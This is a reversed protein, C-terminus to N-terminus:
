DGRKYLLARVFIVAVVGMGPVAVLLGIPRSVTWEVIQGGFLLLLAIAWGIRERRPRSTLLIPNPTRPPQSPEPEDPARSSM